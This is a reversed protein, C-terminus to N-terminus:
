GRGVCCGSREQALRDILEVVAMRRAELVGLERSLREILVEREM